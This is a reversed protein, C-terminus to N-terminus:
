NKRLIVISERNMTEELAGVINTPSNKNPMRKGPINRVFVDECTFGIKEGLEAIIFDTPIRVQKVLRNGIVMCFYKKPKLIKYAQKLCDNLGIYFSLVDKARKGDIKAIKYLSDKLYSSSLSHELTKTAKGGLLENDVGSAKNPDEFIDIWQASLRSFQGYAVTTRSDGYPPSTIICDISSDKIGNTKSSDGYIIKTWKEKDVDKYFDTMGKINAETKKKFIGLVDPSYNELKEKKMRILKFEGNKTNSSLRVTESFSVIFYNRIAEDKIKLIAKKIKALQTVVKEKFWFDINNFNPKEIEIDKIREIESLLKFYENTLALPNIPTTKAKALFIALPNLDIGYANIKLLKSEVLATGSGCFIDCITEGPKSYNELLRKAVQPIFMAPYTHIGHTYTKIKEGRYDWSYDIRRVYKEDKVKEKEIQTELNRIIKVVIGRIEVEQRYIPFLTPNAPQLRIRNKERYLKKLTAENDDIIAVVTQGNDAYEQKRIVVIDGDFIGEDIMSNGQVRLAYNKGYKGVEDRSVTITEGPTEIAEIPQGATIIGILPVEITTKENRTSVARPQNQEKQLYGAEQLKKVYHHATSVSVVKLYKKIEELSPAFGKKKQFSTIFDLVFKQRETLM